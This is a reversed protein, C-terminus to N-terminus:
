LFAQRWNTSCLHLFSERSFEQLNVNFALYEPTFAGYYRSRAYLFSNKSVSDPNRM